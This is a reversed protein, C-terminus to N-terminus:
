LWNETYGHAISNLLPSITGTLCQWQSIESNPQTKETAEQFDLDKFIQQEASDVRERFRM